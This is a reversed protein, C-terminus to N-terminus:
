SLRVSYRLRGYLQCVTQCDLEDEVIIDGSTITGAPQASFQVESLSHLDRTGSVNWNPAIEANRANQAYLLILLNRTKLACFIGVGGAEV